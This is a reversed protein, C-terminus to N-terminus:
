TFTDGFYTNARTDIPISLYRGVSKYLSNINYENKNAMKSIHRKIAKLASEGEDPSIKSSEIEM